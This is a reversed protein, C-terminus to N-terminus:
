YQEERQFKLKNRDHIHKLMYFGLAIKGITFCFLVFCGCVSRNRRTRPLVNTESCFCCHIRLTQSPVPCVRGPRKPRPTRTSLYAVQAPDRQGFRASRIELQNLGHWNDKLASRCTNLWTTWKALNPNKFPKHSGQCSLHYLTQRCQLLGPNSGQTPFIGQLLFHCGVGTSNGPSDWPYLLM